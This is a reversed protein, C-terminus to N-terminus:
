VILYESAELDEALFDFFLAKPLAFADLKPGEMVNYAGSRQMILRALLVSGPVHPKVNQVGLWDTALLRAQARIAPPKRSVRPLPEM